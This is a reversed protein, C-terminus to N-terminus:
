KVMIEISQQSGTHDFISLRHTGTSPSINIQHIDTTSGIYDNDLHWFLEALPNNHTAKCIIESSSGDHTKPLSLTTGNAPYIFKMVSDDNDPNEPPEIYDIHIQKYYYKHIPPLLFFSKMTSTESADSVRRLGDISVPIQSCYPCRRSHIAKDSVTQMVTSECYKGALHGSHSCVAQKNGDPKKFWGSSPLINFIDFMVSGACRAGTLDAVGSGDANGVWVGVVYKPTIGIAWGDRAGYSTGTKWAINQVSSVRTWDLQDPRNVDRMADLTSYIAISDNLPFGAENRALAAYCSVIDLLSVEAGGLILSLGYKDAPRSLTSLGCRKLFEAFRSVGFEKLLWVNPVNLSLALASKADIFGSYTGDFNKPAFGGFNTPIDPLITKDLIVGEQLAACYLLPKLISGSSRPARAIDVWKGERDANIDANGCYAIIDGTFVDAIVAALDNIGSLALDSRWHSALSELRYQLSADIATVSKLGHRTKNYYEVIHPATQPMPYPKDILPEEIALEYEDDSLLGKDRLRKLLRNRKTLLKDRNKSLHILSPANQLVALTAAEAWSMDNGDNCLYRWVAANIGVVNGGFPAHSVYMKLIEDKTYRCELRIAMFMEITKEILNRKGRRHLRITQMTITSGGSVIRHNSINQWIARAIGRASIGCHSYFSRDEYEILSLRFKEPITDCPPFRWQGDDAVRAGLLEGGNATVVTSYPVNGFMNKPLCFLWLLLIAGTAVAITLKISKRKM